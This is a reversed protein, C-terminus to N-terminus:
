SAMAEESPNVMTVVSLLRKFAAFPNPSLLTRNSCHIGIKSLLVVASTLEVFGIFEILGVFGYLKRSLRSFFILTHPAGVGARLRPEEVHKPPHGGRM